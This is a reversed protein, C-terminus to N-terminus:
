HSQDSTLFASNLYKVVGRNHRNSASGAMFFSKCLLNDITRRDAESHYELLIASFSALNAIRELIEVECGETDIKLIDAPPLSAADICGVYIPEGSQEGLDHFSAEGCNNLGARMPLWQAPMGRVAVDHLQIGKIRATKEASKWQRFGEWNHPMPEYCDIRSIEWRHCAWWAFAGVNAGIDMIACPRDFAIPVDYVGALVDACHDMIGSDAALPPSIIM